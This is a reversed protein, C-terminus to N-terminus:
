STGQAMACGIDLLEEVRILDAAEAYIRVLPETGSTRMLLWADSAFNLRIGDRYDVDTITEELPAIQAEYYEVTKKTHVHHSLFAEKEEVSLRLDRRAYELNGLQDLMEAVLQKLPKGSQAMLEVLLLAMLLGDRERVHTPIGIGGSEEGGILVDGKLMEEYIWKFGVPTTTLALGLRECQRKILNSGSLTRVVRGKLGRAEVLHATVLALIRHPNVFTGDSDVAGIRDADGDTIFCADYGLEAVKQVGTQIWPYIPEPHLGAFTPDDNANVEVVEKVGLRRLLASLYSRGAGYLPDVVIRLDAATIAATDVLKALEDLYSTMLDTFRLEPAIDLTLAPAQPTGNTALTATLASGLSRAPAQPTGNTALTALACAQEYNAPLEDCLAAEVRDTFAAPSAGGDAMRLKLGLYEAPNHSSTLMIGGVAREDRAVSFCLTPTPCYADSIVVDFGYAAIVAGTLVACRGANERCDYGVIIRPAPTLPDSGFTASALADELFVRATAEAVRALTATNFDQGIIARWGDTGFHVADVKLPADPQALPIEAEHLNDPQVLPVDAEHLDDPQVLPVDAEHLDDPQVLPIM